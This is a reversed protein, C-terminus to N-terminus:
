RGSGLDVFARQSSASSCCVSLMQLLVRRICGAVVLVVRAAGKERSRIRNLRPISQGLTTDTLHWFALSGGGMLDAAFIQEPPLLALIM